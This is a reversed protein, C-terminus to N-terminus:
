VKRLITMAETFTSNLMKLANSKDKRVEYLFVALSLSIDSRIPDECSLQDLAIQRGLKYAEETRDEIEARKSNISCMAIYKTQDGKLKYYFVKSGCDLANPM